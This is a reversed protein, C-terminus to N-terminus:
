KIIFIFLMSLFLFDDGQAKGHMLLKKKEGFSLGLRVNGQVEWPHFIEV